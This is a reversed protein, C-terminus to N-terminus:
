YKVKSASFRDKLRLFPKEFYHYSLPASLLLLVFGIAQSPPWTQDLARYPGTSLFLGQYMYIGYSIVGIYKLPRLELLNVLRGVQNFYLWAIAIAIGVTRLYSTVVNQVFWSDSTLYLSNAYLLASIM